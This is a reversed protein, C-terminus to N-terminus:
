IGQVVKRPINYYEVLIHSAKNARGGSIHQLTHTPISYAVHHPLHLIPSTDRVVIVFAEEVCVALNPESFVHEVVDEVEVFAVGYWGPLCNLLVPISNVVEGQNVCGLHKSEVGIGVDGVLRVHGLRNKLGDHADLGLVATSSSSLGPLGNHVSQGIIHKLFQWLIVNWM